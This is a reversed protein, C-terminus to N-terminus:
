EEPMGAARLADLLRQSRSGSKEETVGYVKKMTNVTVKPELRQANELAWAGEKTRGQIVYLAALTAFPVYQATPFECAKEFNEIAQDFDDLRIYASAKYHYMDWKFPDNPSLKIAADLYEIAKTPNGAYVHAEGLGVYGLAFNPNIELCTELASLAARHGGAFTQLRGLGHFAFYDRQDIAVAKAADELGQRLVDDASEAWEYVLKFFAAFALYGYAQGFGPDLTTAKRILKIGAVLSDHEQRWLEAVGRHFYDWAGLNETPQRMARHRESGALEPEVAAAITSTIEDQLEFMDDLQRDFREAWVHNGTRTEILQTSIRVRHESKRVSGELVYRVELERGVQKIDVAKGKYVFTSNRSVVFFWRFKSLATIIDETIGDAFYEQEPDGSMNTFPLVAISPNEPIPLATPKASESIAEAEPTPLEEGQKLNAAFARVPQDFGKLVQEGLSVFEFPMRSPVTESVAGQVVVGGSEALQELRQALVIGAGTITNDAIIVEGLSIGIRLHPQIDDNLKSNFEANLAQFALAAPIADSAREFEAVLADGRIERAIGGYAKITESFNDFSAQIREHALTENKQVLSTSGVVDAHLLVALKRSLHDKEM